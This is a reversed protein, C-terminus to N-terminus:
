DYTHYVSAHYHMDMSMTRQDLDYMIWLTGGAIIFLITLMFFFIGTEWKPSAEQGLHLFFRLQTAAQVLASLSIAIALPWFSLISGGVLSFSLSTLAFSIVLGILYSRTTGHWAHKMQTLTLEEEM